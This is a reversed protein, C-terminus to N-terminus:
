RRVKKLIVDQGKGGPIAGKVVVLNSEPQIEVIKLNKITTTANGLQGPMKKGKFVKAPSMRNGTSGISRHSVSVGHAAELGQFHWRKIGGAFGKGKSVGTVDINQIDNLFDTKLVDGVNVSLSKDVRVAVKHRHPEFGRKKYDGIVPKTLKREPSSLKDYAVIINKYDKDDVEQIETVLCDYVQILTVPVSEGDKTYVRSMGVKKGIIGVM